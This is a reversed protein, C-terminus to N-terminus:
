EVFASIHQTEPRNKVFAEPHHWSIPAVVLLTKAIADV